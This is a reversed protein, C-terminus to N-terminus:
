IEKGTRADILTLQCRKYDSVVGWDKYERLAEKINAITANDPSSYRDGKWFGRMEYAIAIEEPSIETQSLRNTGFVYYGKRDVFAWLSHNAEEIERGGGKYFLVMDRERDVTWKDHKSHGTRLTERAKRFFESAEQELPPVYENKFAM